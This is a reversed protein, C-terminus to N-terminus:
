SVLGARFAFVVAQVRDRSGTKALIHGVHTKVTAESVVEQAAIETNTAGQGMLTLVERERPTLRALVAATEGAPGGAENPSPPAAALLPATQRLLRRTSVADVMAEGRHVTRVAEILKEPAVDKLLFGSAGAAIARAVSADLDFTTLVVVRVDPRTAVVRRTAAIGDLRPMRIDMLVVDVDVRELVDLAEQGDAAEAVVTIDSRSNLVMCFGARVLQQDDVVLVRVTDDLGGTM